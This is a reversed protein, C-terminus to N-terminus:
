RILTIGHHNTFYGSVILYPLVEGFKTKYYFASHGHHVLDFSIEDNLYFVAADSQVLTQGISNHYLPPM